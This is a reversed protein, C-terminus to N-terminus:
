SVRAGCGGCSGIGEHLRMRESCVPCLASGASLLGEWASTVLDGLTPRRGGAEDPPQDGGARPREECRTADPMPRADPVLEEHGWLPRPDSSVLPSSPGSLSRGARRTAGSRRGRRTGREDGERPPGVVAARTM